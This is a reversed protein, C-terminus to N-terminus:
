EIRGATMTSLVFTAKHGRSDTRALRRGFVREGNTGALTDAVNTDGQHWPSLEYRQIKLWSAAAEVLFKNRAQLPARPFMLSRVNFRNRQEKSKPGISSDTDGLPLSRRTGCRRMKNNPRGNPADKRRCGRPLTPVAKPPLKRFRRGLPRRDRYPARLCLLCAACSACLDTPYADWPATIAGKANQKKTGEWVRTRGAGVPDGGASM